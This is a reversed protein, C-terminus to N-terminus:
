LKVGFLQNSPGLSHLACLQGIEWFFNLLAEGTKGNKQFIAMVEKIILSEFFQISTPHVTALEVLHILRFQFRNLISPSSANKTFQPRRLVVLSSPRRVSRWPLLEDPRFAPHALFPWLGRTNQSPRSPNSVFFTKHVSRYLIKQM